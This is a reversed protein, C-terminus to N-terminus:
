KQKKGEKTNKKSDGPKKDDTSPTAEDNSTSPQWQFLNHLILVLLNFSVNLPNRRFMPWPPLVLVSALATGFLISFVM